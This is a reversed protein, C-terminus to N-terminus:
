LFFVIKEIKQFSGTQFRLRFYHQAFAVLLLLLLYYCYYYCAVQVGFGDLLYFRSAELVAVDNVSTM